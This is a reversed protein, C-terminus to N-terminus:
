IISSKSSIYFFVTNYIISESGGRAHSNRISHFSPAKEQFATCEEIEKDKLLSKHDQFPVSKLKLSQQGEM